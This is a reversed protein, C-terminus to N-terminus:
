MVHLMQGLSNIWKGGPIVELEQERFNRLLLLGAWYLAGSLILCVLLTFLNGLHPTLVKGLLMNLIGAICAVALPIILVQLWDMQQRMQRYAFTGLIMCLVAGGMLGGYVLALVGAKGTNLLVAVAITYVVDAVALAGMVLYKKGTLILMGAFYFSLGAFLIVSAGGRLMKAATEANEGCIVEATQKSLVTFFMTFFVTHIINLHVGSQFVMRAFRHEERRILGMAKVGIPMTMFTTFAVICGCVVGYGAVYVGYEVATDGSGGMAKQLFILGLPLFLMALLLIGTQAGRNAFLIRVSDAFSVVNRTGDQPAKESNRKKGRCIITLFIVSFVESLTVAIAVGVGGYMSTFEEKALLNSVKKGYGTLMNCFILSFGLIFVQRLISVAAGPLEAGEGGAFGQLVASITRLVIAPALIMIIVTSYQIQFLGEAIGGAAMVAVATGAAGLVIQFLLVNKRMASANKYQGKSIRLRLVRGLADAVGGSVLIFIIAYVELGAAVYTVGSYGTLKAIIALIIWAFIYSIVQVQRRKAEAQNM